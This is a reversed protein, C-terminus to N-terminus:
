KVVARMASRWLPAPSAILLGGSADLGTAPSTSRAASAAATQQPAHTSSAAAADASEDLLASVGALTNDLRAAAVLQDIAEAVPRRWAGLRPARMLRSFLDGDTVVVAGGWWLGLEDCAAHWRAAAHIGLAGSGDFSIAIAYVRALTAIRGTELLLRLCDGPAAPAQGDPMPAETHNGYTGVAVLAELPSAGGEPRSEREAHAGRASEDVAEGPMSLRLAELPRPADALERIASLREYAMLADAFDDRALLTEPTRDAALCGICRPQDSQIASEAGDTAGAATEARANAKRLADGVGDAARRGNSWRM